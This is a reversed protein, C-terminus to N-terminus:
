FIHFSYSFLKYIRIFTVFSTLVEKCVDVFTVYLRTDTVTSLAVIERPLELTFTSVTVSLRFVFHRAYTSSSCEIMFTIKNADIINQNNNIM